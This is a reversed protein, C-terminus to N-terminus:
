PILPNIYLGYRPAPLRPKPQKGIKVHSVHESEHSKSIYPSKFRKIATWRPASHQQANNIGRSFLYCPTSMERRKPSFTRALARTHPFLVTLCQTLTMKHSYRRNTSKWDGTQQHIPGDPTSITTRFHLSLWMVKESAKIGGISVKRRNSSVHLQCAEGRINDRSLHGCPKTLSLFGTKTDRWLQVAKQEIFTGTVELRQM